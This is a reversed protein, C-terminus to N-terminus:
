PVAVAEHGQAKLKEVVKSGVLGTGGIVVIKLSM